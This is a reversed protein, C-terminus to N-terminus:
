FILMFWIFFSLLSVKFSSIIMNHFIDLVYIVCWSYGSGGYYEGWNLSVELVSMYYYSFKIFYFIYSNMFWMLSNFYYFKLSYIYLFKNSEYGFLLGLYVSFFVMISLYFPLFSFCFDINLLWVMMCGFIVSFFSLLMISIKMFDIDDFFGLVPISKNDFIMTYYFLRISYCCTLGLSFYFILGLSFGLSGFVSHELIMDKSYFGSLFPIGCLSLNAVNFCCSTLPMYICFSGMSRIDQNDTMYYIMIGSCLFLLSKFMAHSLLHFYSLDALNMFISVMMLGLQSLTSLAIIKKLDFEFNACLSSFLMTIMSLYVFFISFVEVNYFFRILLYVGATVLTSSHVLSSVPTPAAMAEPLWCSFPIQASKTFCSFILIFFILNSYLGNYFMFHWSGYSFVWGLSILLGIDGVRNTLFTLVGSFYSSSSSYYIVLCYSVLGLGDWGLLISMLSPSLIMLLMSFVFLVVMLLFRIYAFSLIGMYQSSYLIVLCSIILVCTLFLVSLWDLYIVYYVSVSNISIFFYELFISYDNLIFILSFMFGLFFMIAFFLFVLIYYNLTLM